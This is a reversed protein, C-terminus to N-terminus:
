RSLWKKRGVHVRCKAEVTDVMDSQGVSYGESMISNGRESARVPATYDETPRLELVPFIAQPDAISCAVAAQRPLPGDLRLGNALESHGVERKSHKVLRVFQAHWGCIGPADEIYTPGSAKMM